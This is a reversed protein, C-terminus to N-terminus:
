RDKYLDDIKKIDDPSATERVLRERRRQRSQIIFNSVKMFEGMVEDPTANNHDDNNMQKSEKINHNMYQTVQAAFDQRVEEDPIKGCDMGEPFKKHHYATVNDDKDVEYSVVAAAPSISPNAYAYSYSEVENESDLVVHTIIEGGGLNEPIKQIKTDDNTEADTIIDMYERLTKM